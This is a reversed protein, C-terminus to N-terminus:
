QAQGARVTALMSALVEEPTLDDTDVVVADAAQLLPSDERESDLRDRREIDIQIEAAREPHGEEVARRRAREGETM